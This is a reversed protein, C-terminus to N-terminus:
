TKDNLKWSGIDQMDKLNRIDKLFGTVKCAKQM